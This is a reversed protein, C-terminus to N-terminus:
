RSAIWECVCLRRPVTPPAGDAVIRERDHLSIRTAGCRVGGAVDYTQRDAASDVVFVSHVVVRHPVVPAAKDPRDRQARKVLLPHPGALGVPKDLFAVVRVLDVHVKAALTHEMADRAGALAASSGWKQVGVLSGGCRMRIVDCFKNQDVIRSASSDSCHRVTYQATSWDFTAAWCMRCM